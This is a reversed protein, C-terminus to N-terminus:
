ICQFAREVTIRIDFFKLPFFWDVNLFWDVNVSVNVKEQARGENRFNWTERQYWKGEAPFVEEPM